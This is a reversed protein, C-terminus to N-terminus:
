NCYKEPSENSIRQDVVGVRVWGGGVDSINLKNYIKLLIALTKKWILHTSTCVTLQEMRFLEDSALFIGGVVISTTM